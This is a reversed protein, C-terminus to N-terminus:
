RACRESIRAFESRDALREAIVFSPRILSTFASEQPSPMIVMGM